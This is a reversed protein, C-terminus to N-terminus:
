INNYNSKPATFYYINEVIKIPKKSTITKIDNKLDNKLDNNIKTETSVISLNDVKEKELGIKFSAQKM